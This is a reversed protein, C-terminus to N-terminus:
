YSLINSHIIKQGPEEIVPLFSLDLHNGPVESITPYEDFHLCGLDEDNCYYWLGQHDTNGHEFWYNTSVAVLSALVTLVLLVFIILKLCAASKGNMGM